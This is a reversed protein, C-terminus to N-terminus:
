KVAKDDGVANKHELHGIAVLAYKHENFLYLILMILHFIKWNHVICVRSMKQLGYTREIPDPDHVSSNGLIPSSSSGHKLQGNEVLVSKSRASPNKKPICVPCGALSAKNSPENEECHLHTSHGCNFVRVGSTSLGKTLSCGCVCCSSDQPAYAHSAGKRLLNMTYYTDDEILTKATDQVFFSFWFHLSFLNSFLFLKM